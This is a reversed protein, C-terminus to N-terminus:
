AGCSVGLLTAVRAIVQDDLDTPTKAALAKLECLLFQKAADEVKALNEPTLQKMIFAVLFRELWTPM